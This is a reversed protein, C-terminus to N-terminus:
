SRKQREANRGNQTGAKNGQQRTAKNGEHGEHGEHREGIFRHTAETGCVQVRNRGAGHGDAHIGDAQRCCGARSSVDAPGHDQLRRADEHRVSRHGSDVREPEADAPINSYADRVGDHQGHEHTDWMRAMLDAYMGMGTIIGDLGLRMEFLFGTGLSAGFIGKMAPRAAIEARMRPVLPDSEEKVYAMHPFARALEVILEVSPPLDKAGGSTQVIM